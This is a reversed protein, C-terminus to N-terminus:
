PRAEPGPRPLTRDMDTGLDYVFRAIDPRAAAPPFSKQPSFLTNEKLLMSAPFAPHRLKVHIHRCPAACPQDPRFKMEPPHHLGSLACLNGSGVFTFPLHMALAVPSPGDPAKDVEILGVGLGALLDQIDRSMGGPDPLNPFRPDKKYRRLCRGLVPRLRPFKRRLLHLTGWDNVVVEAGPLRSLTALLRSLRPLDDETVPPTRLTLPVRRKKALALVAAWQARDPILHRCFEAGAYLRTFVVPVGGALTAAWGTKLPRLDGAAEAARIDRVGAAIAWDPSKDKIRVM